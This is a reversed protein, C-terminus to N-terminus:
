QRESGTRINRSMAYLTWQGHGMLMIHYHDCRRPTIPIDITRKSIGNEGGSITELLDYEACSDYKIYVNLEANPEMEARLM